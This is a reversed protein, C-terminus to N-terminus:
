NFHNRCHTHYESPHLHLAQKTIHPQNALTLNNENALCMIYIYITLEYTRNIPLFIVAGCIVLLALTFRSRLHSRSFTRVITKACLSKAAAVLCGRFRVCITLIIKICFLCINMHMNQQIFLLDCGVADRNSNFDFKRHSVSQSATKRKATREHKQKVKRRNRSQRFRQRKSNLLYQSHIYTRISYVCFYYGHEM